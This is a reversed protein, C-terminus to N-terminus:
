GRGVVAHIAKVDSLQRKWDKAPNFQRCIVHEDTKRVFQKLFAEGNRMEIFCDSGNLPPKNAVAYVLEGEMYRPSMSDGAAYLAFGDKLGKQNPHRLARGIENDMNIVVADQSGNAHGLIPVTDPGFQYDGIASVIKPRLNSVEENGVGTTLWEINTQLAKALEDMARFSKTRGIVLSQITSQQTRILGHDDRLIRALSTPNLGLKNMRSIVRDRM